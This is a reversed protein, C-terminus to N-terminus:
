PTLILTRGEVAWGSLSSLFNMGLVDTNGFEPAVVAALGDRGIPGVEIRGITTRKALVTGNATSLPVPLAEFDADLKAAKATAMSLATSTAGSDILFRTAVGDVSGTVWFHGDAAMQIRLSRGDSDSVGRGTLEAHVRNGVTAFESRFALIALLIAFIGIWAAIMKITAGLPLQRAVLASVVLLLCLGAQVFAATQDGTM